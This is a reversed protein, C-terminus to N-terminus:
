LTQKYGELVAAKKEDSSVTEDDDHMFRYRDVIHRIRDARECLGTMVNGTELLHGEGAGAGAAEVGDLMKVVTVLM